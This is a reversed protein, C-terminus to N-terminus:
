FEPLMIKTPMKVGAVRLKKTTKHSGWQKKWLDLRMKYLKLWRCCCRCARQSIIIFLRIIISFVILM